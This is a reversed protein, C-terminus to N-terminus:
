FLDVLFLNWNGFLNCFEFELNLFLKHNPLKYKLNTQKKYNTDKLRM